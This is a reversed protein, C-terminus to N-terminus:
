PLTLMWEIGFRDVIDAFRGGWFAEGLPMQVKGGQALGDVIRESETGGPLSLAVSINGADPDVAKIQQGDSALFEIGPASFAAHMVKDRFEAPMGASVPPPADKVYMIEYTGGLISQYFKLAEECRGYFFIYPQLRTTLTPGNSATTM